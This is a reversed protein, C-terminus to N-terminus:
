AAIVAEILNRASTDWSFRAVRESATAQQSESRQPKDWHVRMAAVLADADRAPFYSAAEGCVERVVPIDSAIVPCGSAMAELPPIGFGEYLSPFVHAVANAYLAAVEADNRGPAVIVDKGAAVGTGGFVTSDLSGAIVLKAGPREIRTFAQLLVHLNKNPTPNGVFLFYRQPVLGLAALVSEDRTRGVFHDCGNHLILISDERLRLVQALERRSFESVTAIRGTRSLAWGLAQHAARYNQGFNGPTRFVAADHIVVLKNRHLVPASNGLNILRAGAAARALDYQEWGHGSREGVREVSIASLSLDSSAGAPVLLRWRHRAFTNGDSQILRDMATVMERSYRQVGSLKQTMFRGNIAIDHISDMSITLSQESKKPLM